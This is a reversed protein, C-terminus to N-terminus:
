TILCYISQHSVQIRCKILDLPVIATHTLGCSLMGGFGCLAYYKSSGFEVTGDNASISVKKYCHNPFQFPYFKCKKTACQASGFPVRFPNNKVIESLNESVGM